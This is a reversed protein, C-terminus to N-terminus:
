LNGNQETVTSLPPENLAPTSPYGDKITSAAWVSAPSELEQATGANKKADVANHRRSLQLADKHVVFMPSFCGKKGCCVKASVVGSM